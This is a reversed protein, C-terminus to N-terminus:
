MGAMIRIDSNTTNIDVSVKIKKCTQNCSVQLFSDRQQQGQDTKLGSKM